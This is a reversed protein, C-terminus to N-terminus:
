TSIAHSTSKKREPLSSPDKEEEQFSLNSVHFEKQLM